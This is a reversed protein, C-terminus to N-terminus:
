LKSSPTWNLLLYVVIVVSMVSNGCNSFDGLFGLGLRVDKAKRVKISPSIEMCMVLAARVLNGSVFSVTDLM